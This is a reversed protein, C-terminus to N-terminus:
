TRKSNKEYVKLTDSESEIKVEANVDVAVMVMTEHCEYKPSHFTMSYYKWIRTSRYTATIELNRILTLFFMVSQVYKYTHVVYM